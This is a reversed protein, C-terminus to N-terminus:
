GGHVPHMLAMKRSSLRIVVRILKLDLLELLRLRYDPDVKDEELLFVEQYCFVLMQQVWNRKGCFICYVM